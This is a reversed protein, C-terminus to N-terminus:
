SAGGLEREATRLRALAGDFALTLRTEIRVLRERAARVTELARDLEDLSESLIEFREGAPLVDGYRDRLEDLRAQVDALLQPLPPDLRIEEGFLVLPAPAPEPAAAV